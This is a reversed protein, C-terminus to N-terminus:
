LHLRRRRCAGGAAHDGHRQLLQHGVHVAVRPVDGAGADADADADAVGCRAFGRHQLRHHRLRFRRHCGGHQHRHRFRLVPQERLRRRQCHSLRDRPPPHRTTAAQRWSPPVRAFRPRPPASFAQVSLGQEYSSCYGATVAAANCTISGAAPYTRARERTPTRPPRSPAERRRPACACATCISGAPVSTLVAGSLGQASLSSFLPTVSAASGCTSAFNSKCAAATCGSSTGQSRTRVPAHANPLASSVSHVCTSPAGVTRWRPGGTHAPVRVIFLLQNGM